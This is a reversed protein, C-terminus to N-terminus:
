RHWYSSSYYTYRGVDKRLKLRSIDQGLHQGYWCGEHSGLWKSLSGDQYVLCIGRLGFTDIAFRLGRIEQQLELRTWDQGTTCTQNFIINSLYQQGLIVVTDVYLGIVPDTCILPVEYWSQNANPRKLFRRSMTNALQGARLLRSLHDTRLMRTILCQVEFPIEHALINTLVQGLSTDTNFPAQLALSTEASAFMTSSLMESTPLTQQAVRVLTDLPEEGSPVLNAVAVKWCDQHALHLIACSPDCKAPQSSVEYHQCFQAVLKHANGPRAESEPCSFSKPSTWFEHDTLEVSRSFLIQSHADSPM